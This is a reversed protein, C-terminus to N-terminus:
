TGILSDFGVRPTESQTGDTRRTAAVAAIVILWLLMGSQLNSWASQVLALGGAMTVAQRWVGAPLTHWLGWGVWLLAVGALWGYTVTVALWDSLPISSMPWAGLPAPHWAVAPHLMWGFPHTLAHWGYAAWTHLRLGVNVWRNVGDGLVALLGLFPWVFRRDARDFWCYTVWCGAAWWACASQGVWLGFLAFLSSGPSWAWLLPLSVASVVALSTGTNFLGGNSEWFRRLVNLHQSQAWWLCASVGLVFALTQPVVRLPRMTQSAV